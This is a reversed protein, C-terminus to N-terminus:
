QQEIAFLILNDEIEETFLIIMSSVTLVLIFVGVLMTLPMSIFFVQVQPVLRNLIGLAINILFNTIVVPSAIKIGLITIKSVLSIIAFSLEGLDINYNYPIISYSEIFAKIVYLHLDLALFAALAMLTLMKSLTTSNTGTSPDFMSSSQLGMLTSMFDGAINVAYIFFRASIGMLIGIALETIIVLALVSVNTPQLPIYQSVIPSLALTLLLAITLKIPTSILKDSFLPLTLFMGSIRIFTIFFPYLIINNLFEAFM